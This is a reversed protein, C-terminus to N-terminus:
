HHTSAGGLSLSISISTRGFAVDVLCKTASKSSRTAEIYTISLAATLHQYDELGSQSRTLFSPRQGSSNAHRAASRLRSSRLRLHGGPLDLSPTGCRTPRLVM